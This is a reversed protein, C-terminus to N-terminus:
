LPGLCIGPYGLSDCTAPALHVPPDPDMAPCLIDGEVQCSLCLAPSVVSRVNGLFRERLFKVRRNLM